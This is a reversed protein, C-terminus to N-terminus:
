VPNKSFHMKGNKYSTEQYFGKGRKTTRVWLIMNRPFSTENGNGWKGLFTIWHNEYLSLEASPSMAIPQYPSPACGSHTPVSALCSSNKQVSACNRFFLSRCGQNRNNTLSVPIHSLYGSYFITSIMNKFAKCILILFRSKLRHSLKKRPPEWAM